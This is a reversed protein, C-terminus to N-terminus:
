AKSPVFQARQVHREWYTGGLQHIVYVFQTWFRLYRSLVLLVEKEKNEEEKRKTKKKKKKKKYNKDQKKRKRM